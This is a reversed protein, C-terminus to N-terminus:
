WPSSSRRFSSFARLALRGAGLVADAVFPVPDERRPAADILAWWAVALTDGTFGALLPDLVSAVM